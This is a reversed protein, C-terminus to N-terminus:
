PGPTPTKFRPCPTGPFRNRFTACAQTATAAFDPSAPSPSVAEQTATLTPTESPLSIGPETATPTCAPCDTPTSSGAVLAASPTSSASGSRFSIYGLSYAALFLLVSLVVGTFTGLLWSFIVARNGGPPGGTRKDVPQQGPM